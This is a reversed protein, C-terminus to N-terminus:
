DMAQRIDYNVLGVALPAQTTQLAAEAAMAGAAYNDTGIYTVVSPSNVASDIVVIRAGQDAAWNIVEANGEYDIASFVLAEAGAEVMERVLQNQAEFDEETEPGVITLDLNYEAAAAEAGAFVAKWFESETSKAVLAVSHREAVSTRSCATLLLVLLVPLAMRLYKKRKM